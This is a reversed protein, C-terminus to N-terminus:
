LVFMLFIVPFTVYVNRHLVLYVSGFLFGSLASLLGTEISGKSIIHGLGWTLACIIGGYPIRSNKFWKECANQGFVIILTILITEIFYYVYQFIFKIIGLNNYEIQVKFGNWSVYSIVIALVIAFVIFVYQLVTFNSSNPKLSFDYKNKAFKVIFIIACTWLVYTISWHALITWDNWSFPRGYIFPEVFIVIFELCIGAVCLLVLKFYDFGSVNEKM